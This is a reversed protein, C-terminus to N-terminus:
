HARFLKIGSETKVCRGDHKRQMTNGSVAFITYERETLRSCNCARSRKITADVVNEAYAAGLVLCVACIRCHMKQAIRM